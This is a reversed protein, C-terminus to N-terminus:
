GNTPSVSSHSRGIKVVVITADDVPSQPSCHNRVERIVSEVIFQASEHRYQRILEIVRSEGFQPGHPPAAELIGDSVLVLIDGAQLTTVPSSEFPQDLKIGIPPDLSSFEARVHGTDDFLLATPHGANAYSATLRQPDIHVLVATIFGEEIHPCYAQAVRRLIEGPDSTLSGFARLFTSVVTIVMAAVIGHGSADAVVIGIEGGPLQIYDFFDGGTEDASISVGAIDFGSLSPPAHPLLNQQVERALEMRHRNAEMQKRETLDRLLVMCTPKSDWEATVFRLETPVVQGLCNVVDADRTAGPALPLPFRQGVFAGAAYAFLAEAAANAHVVIGDQDVIVIGDLNRDVITRLDRESNRAAELAKELKRRMKHRSLAYRLSRILTAADAGKQLFDQAGHQIAQMAIEDDSVGTLVVIPVGSAHEFIRQFTDLGSSDPLELDLLVLHIRGQSLEAIAQSVTEVTVVDFTVGVVQKLTLNVLRADFRSDEVLLVRIQRDARGRPHGDSAAPSKKPFGSSSDDDIWQQPNM